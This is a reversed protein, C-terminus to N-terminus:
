KKLLNEIRDLRDQIDKIEPNRRNIAANEEEMFGMKDEFYGFFVMVVMSFLFIPILWTELKIDIKYRELQSLVLFLIMGSNLIAIYGMSRQIFIKAHVIKSRIKKIKSM